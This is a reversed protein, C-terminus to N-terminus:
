PSDNCLVSKQSPVNLRFIWVSLTRVGGRTPHPGLLEERGQGDDQKNPESTFVLRMKIFAIPPPGAGTTGRTM